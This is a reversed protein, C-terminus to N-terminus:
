ECLEEPDRHEGELMSWDIENWGQAHQSEADDIDSETHQSEADDDVAKQWGVEELPWWPFECWALLNFDGQESPIEEVRTTKNALRDPQRSASIGAVSCRRTRYMKYEVYLWFFILPWLKLVFNLESLLVQHLRQRSARKSANRSAESAATDIELPYDIGNVTIHLDYPARLLSGLATNADVPEGGRKVIVEENVLEPWMFEIDEALFRVPYTLEAGRAPWGGFVKAASVRIQARHEKAANASCITTFIVRMTSQLNEVLEVHDFANDGDDVVVAPGGVRLKPAYVQRLRGLSAGSLSPHRLAVVVRDPQCGEDDDRVARASERAEDGHVPHAAGSKYMVFKVGITGGEKTWPFPVLFSSMSGCAAFPCTSAVRVYKSPRPSM